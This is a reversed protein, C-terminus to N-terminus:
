VHARGIQRSRNHMLVVHVAREAVLRALDPDARLGWVDNVMVAGADLAAAAVAARYTDISVVADPFAAVVARIVPVVRDIEAEAGVPEAGPRTSEGGLDSSCVDSSWDSIRM